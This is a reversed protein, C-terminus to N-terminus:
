RGGSWLLHWPPHWRTMCHIQYWWQQCYWPSQRSVESSWCSLTCNWSQCLGWYYTSVLSPSFTNFSGLPSTVNTISNKGSSISLRVTFSTDEENFIPCCDVLNNGLYEQDIIWICLNIHHWVVPTCKHQSSIEPRCLYDAWAAQWRIVYPISPCCLSTSESTNSSSITRSLPLILKVTGTVFKSGM